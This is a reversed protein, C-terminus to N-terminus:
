LPSKSKKGTQILGGLNGLGSRTRIRNSYTKAPVVSKSFTRRVPPTDGETLAALTADDKMKKIKVLDEKTKNIMQNFFDVFYEGEAISTDLGQRKLSYIQAKDGYAEREDRLALDTEAERQVVKDYASQDTPSLHQKIFDLVENGAKRNLAIDTTRKGLASGEDLLSQYMGKQVERESAEQSIQSSIKDRQSIYDGMYRETEQKLYDLQGVATIPDWYRNWSSAGTKDNWYLGVHGINHYDMWTNPSRVWPAVTEYYNKMEEKTTPSPVNLNRLTENTIDQQIKYKFQDIYEPRLASLSMLTTWGVNDDDTDTISFIPNCAGGPSFCLKISNLYTEDINKEKLIEKEKNQIEKYVSASLPREKMEKTIFQNIPFIYKEGGVIQVGTSTEPVTITKNLPEIFVDKTKEGYDIKNKELMGELTNRKREDKIADNIADLRGMTEILSGGVGIGDIARKLSSITINPNYKKLDKVQKQTLQSEIRKQDINKQEITIPIATAQYPVSIGHINLSDNATHQLGSKKMADHASYENPNVFIKKTIADEVNEKEKELRSMTPTVTGSSESLFPEKQYAHFNDGVFAKGPDWKGTFPNMYSQQYTKQPIQSVATPIQSVAADIEQADTISITPVAVQGIAINSTNSGFTLGAIKISGKSESGKSEPGLGWQKAVGAVWSKVHDAGAQGIRDSTWGVNGLWGDPSTINKISEKIKRTNSTSSSVGGTGSGGKPTPNQSTGRKAFSSTKPGKGAGGSGKSGGKSGGKGKKGKAM